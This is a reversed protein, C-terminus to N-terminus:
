NATEKIQERRKRNDGSDYRINYQKSM